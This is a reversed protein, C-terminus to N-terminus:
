LSASANISFPLGRLSMLALGGQGRRVGSGELL